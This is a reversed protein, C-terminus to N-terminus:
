SPASLGCSALQAIEVPFEAGDRLERAVARVAEPHDSRLPLQVPCGAVAGATQVVTGVFGRTGEYTVAPHGQM